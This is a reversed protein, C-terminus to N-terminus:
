QSEEVRRLIDGPQVDLAGCVRDLVSLTISSATGRMLSLATNYSIEAQEALVATSMGKIKAIEEVHIDILV